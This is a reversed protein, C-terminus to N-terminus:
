AADLKDAAVNPEGLGEMSVVTGRVYSVERCRTVQRAYLDIADDPRNDQAAVIALLWLAWVTVWDERESPMSELAQNAYSNAGPFDGGLVASVLGFLKKRKNKVPIQHGSLYWFHDSLFSVCSDYPWNNYFKIFFLYLIIM